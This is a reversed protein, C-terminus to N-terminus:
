GGRWSTFCSSDAWRCDVVGHAGGLDAGPDVCFFCSVFFFFSVNIVEGFWKIDGGKFEQVKVVRRERGLRETHFYEQSAGEEALKMGLSAMVGRWGAEALNLDYASQDRGDSYVHFHGNEDSHSHTHTHSQHSQQAMPPPERVWDELEGIRPVAPLQAGNTTGPRHLFVFDGRRVGFTETGSPGHPDLELVSVTETQPPNTGYWMVKATRNQAHTSQVVAV